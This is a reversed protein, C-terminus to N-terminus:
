EQTVVMKVRYFVNSVAPQRLEALPAANTWPGAPSTAAQLFGVIKVDVPVMLCLEDSPDSELGIADYATCVFYWPGQALDPIIAAANLGTNTVQDYCTPAQGWYVRYGAVAPDPNPSWSLFATAAQSAGAAVLLALIAARRKM